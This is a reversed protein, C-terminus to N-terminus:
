RAGACYAQQCCHLVVVIQDSEAHLQDAYARAEALTDFRAPIRAPGPLYHAFLEGAFGVVTIDYTAMNREIM